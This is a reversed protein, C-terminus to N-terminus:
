PRFTRPLSRVPKASQSIWPIVSMSSMATGPMNLSSGSGTGRAGLSYIAAPLPLATAALPAGGCILGALLARRLHWSQFSMYVSGKIPNPVSRLFELAQDCRYETPAFARTLSGRCHRAVGQDRARHHFNLGISEAQSTPTDLKHLLCIEREVVGCDVREPVRAASFCM